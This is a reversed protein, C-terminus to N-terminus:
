LGRFVKEISGLSQVKTIDNLSKVNYKKKLFNEYQRNTLTSRQVDKPLDLFWKEYSGTTAGFQSARENEEENDTIPLAVSRENFHTHLDKEIEDLSDYKRSDHERCWITTGSDMTAFYEYSKIVGSKELEKYSQHRAITRSEGIFTNINTRINAKSLKDSKIEFDRIINDISRGQNVGSAVLVKLARATQEESIKFLEKFQYGQINRNSNVIQEAVAVPVSKGLENLYYGYVLSAVETGEDQLSAFLGGYAKQIEEDILKRMDNLRKKTWEGKTKALQILINQEAIKLSALLSDYSKGKYNEFLTSELIIKDLLTM